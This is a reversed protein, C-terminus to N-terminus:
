GTPTVKFASGLLHEETELGVSYFIAKTSWIDKRLSEAATTSIWEVMLIKYEFLQFEKKRGSQHSSHMVM